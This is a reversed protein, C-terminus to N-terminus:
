PFIPRPGLLLAALRLYAKYAEPTLWSLEVTSGMTLHGDRPVM